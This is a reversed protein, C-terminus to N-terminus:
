EYLKRNIINSLERIQDDTFSMIGDNSRDAFECDIGSIRIPSYVPTKGNRFITFYDPYSVNVEDTSGMIVVGPKNLSRAMHQGVSDCGVFLDCQEILSLYMRLDAGPTNGPNQSISDAPHFFQSDGFYIIMADKNTRTIETVLKGYDDVDLSRHSSDYPRGNLMSMGSGYPQVVIIKSKKLEQRKQELLWKATNKELSSTYLVPATLDSHDDTKNIEVDFAEALSLEQNYYGKVLYPEPSVTVNNKIYQDFIGKQGISFTRDQLLPHSWFLSEWGYVLVKFDDDPNLRAFKELAPVAAIVRGAGGTIIFTTNSKTM